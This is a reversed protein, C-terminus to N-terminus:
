GAPALPLAVAVKHDGYREWPTDRAVRRYPPPDESRFRGEVPMGHVDARLRPAVGPTRSGPSGGIRTWLTTRYEWAVALRRSDGRPRGLPNRLTSQLRSRGRGAALKAVCWTVGLLRHSLTVVRALRLSPIVGSKHSSRSFPAWPGVKRSTREDTLKGMTCVLM